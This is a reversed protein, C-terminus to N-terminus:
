AMVRALRNFIEGVTQITEAEDPEIRVGFRKDLNALIDILDLSDANLDETLRSDLSITERSVCLSEAITEILLRSIEQAEMTIAQFLKRRHDSNNRDLCLWGRKVSEGDFWRVRALGDASEPPERFGRYIWLREGGAGM